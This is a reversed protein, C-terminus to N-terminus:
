EVSEIDSDDVDVFRERKASTAAKPAENTGDLRHKTRLRKLCDAEMKKVHSRLRGQRVKERMIKYRARGEDTWGGFPM